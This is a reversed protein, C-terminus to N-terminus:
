LRRNKVSGAIIRSIDTKDSPRVRASQLRRLSSSSRWFADRQRHSIKKKKRHAPSIIVVYQRQENFPAHKGRRQCNRPSASAPLDLRPPAHRPPDRPSPSWSAARPWTLRHRQRRTSRRRLRRRRWSTNSRRRRTNSTSEPLRRRVQMVTRWGCRCRADVWMGVMWRSDTVVLPSKRSNSWELMFGCMLSWDLFTRHCNFSYRHAIQGLESPALSARPKGGLVRCLPVLSTTFM